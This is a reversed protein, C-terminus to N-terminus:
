RGLPLRLVSMAMRILRRLRSRRGGHGPAEGRAQNELAWMQATAKTVPMWAPREERSVTQEEEGRLAPSSLVLATGQYMRHM